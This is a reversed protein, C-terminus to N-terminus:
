GDFGGPSEMLMAMYRTILGDEGLTAHALFVAYPGDNTVGLGEIFCEHGDVVVCRLEHHHLNEGLKKRESRRAFLDRIGKRGRITEIASAGAAPELAPRMYVGDEAFTAAAADDDGADLAAYYAALIPPVTV